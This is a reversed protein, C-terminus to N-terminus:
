TTNDKFLTDFGARDITADVDYVMVNLLHQNESGLLVIL